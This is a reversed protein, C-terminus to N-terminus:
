TNEIFFYHTKKNTAIGCLSHLDYKVSHKCSGWMGCCCCCFLVAVTHITRLKSIAVGDNEEGSFIHTNLEGAQQPM